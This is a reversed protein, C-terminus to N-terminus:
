VLLELWLMVMNVMNQHYSKNVDTSRLEITLYEGM